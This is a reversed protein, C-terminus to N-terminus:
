GVLGGTTSGRSLSDHPDIALAGPSGTRFIRTKLAAEGLPELPVPAASEMAQCQAADREWDGCLDGVRELVIPMAGPTRATDLAALLLIGDLVMARPLVVGKFVLSMPTMGVPDQLFVFLNGESPLMLGSFALGAGRMTVELLGDANRRIMGFDHFLRDPMLLSPRSTRWFGEYAAGKRATEDRARGIFPQLFALSGGTEHSDAAAAPLGMKAAFEDEPVFWDALSFTSHRIAVLATLRVLNHETPHVAGSLWRGVLSKDVGLDHALAVRSFSLARMVLGLKDPFGGIRDM